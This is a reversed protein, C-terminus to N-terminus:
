YNLDGVCLLGPYKWSLTPLRFMAFLELLSFGVVHMSAKQQGLHLTGSCRSKLVSTAQFSSKYNTLNVNWFM